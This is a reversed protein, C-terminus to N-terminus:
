LTDETHPNHRKARLSVSNGFAWKHHKRNVQRSRKAIAKVAANTLKKRPKYGKRTTYTQTDIVNDQQYINTM